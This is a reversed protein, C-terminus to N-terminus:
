VIDSPKTRKLSREKEQHDYIQLIEMNVPTKPMNQPRETFRFNRIYLFFYNLRQELTNVLLRHPAFSPLINMLEFISLHYFIFSFGSVRRNKYLTDIYFHVLLLIQVSSFILFHKFGWSPRYLQIM